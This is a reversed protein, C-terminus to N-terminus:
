NRKVLSISGNPHEVVRYLRRHYNEIEKLMRKVKQTMRHINLNEAQKFNGVKRWARERLRMLSANNHRNESRKKYSNVAAKGERRMWSFSPQM